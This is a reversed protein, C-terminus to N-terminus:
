HIKLRAFVRNLIDIEEESVELTKLNTFGEKATKLATRLSRAKGEELDYVFYGDPRKDLFFWCDMKTKHVVKIITRAENEDLHYYTM